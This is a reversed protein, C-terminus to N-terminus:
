ALFLFFKTEAARSVSVFNNLFFAIWIYKRLCGCILLLINSIYQKWVPALFQNQTIFFDNFFVGKEYSNITSIPQLLGLYINVGYILLDGLNIGQTQQMQM